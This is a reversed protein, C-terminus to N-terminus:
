SRYYLDEYYIEYLYSPYKATSIRTFRGLIERSIDSETSCATMADALIKM